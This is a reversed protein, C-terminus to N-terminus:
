WMLLMSSQHPSQAHEYRLEGGLATMAATRDFAAPMEPALCLQRDHTATSRCYSVLASNEWRSRAASRKVPRLSGTCHAWPPIGNSGSM